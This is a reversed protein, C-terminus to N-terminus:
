SFRLHDAAEVWQGTLWYGFTIKVHWLKNKVETKMRGIKTWASAKFEEYRKGSYRSTITGKISCQTQYIYGKLFDIIYKLRPSINTSYLQQRSLINIHSKRHLFHRAKKFVNWIKRQEWCVWIYHLKEAQPLLPLQFLLFLLSPASLLLGKQYKWNWIKM